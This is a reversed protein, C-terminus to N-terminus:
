ATRVKLPTNVDPIILRSSFVLLESGKYREQASYSLKYDIQPYKYYLESFEPVNDYSVLWSQKIKSSVLKALEAHDDHQYHNEYLEQGKHYYPPDLYVLAKRPLSPLTNIIFYSADENYLSIRNKYSAIRKIRAILDSKNYRADLKWKGKQTQGGIVGATIIGSRNTRNMFFTSFGLSLKSYDDPHAQISRQHRWEKMTVPTDYVLRCLEETDELVSYWFAYLSNNLDNIHVHLAYESFLLAFAIGAGGAFLEVYHGDLLSNEEMVLKIFPALKSKGGPYRLPTTYKM